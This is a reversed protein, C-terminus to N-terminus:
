EPGGPIAEDIQYLAAGAAAIKYAAILVLLVNGAERFGIGGGGRVASGGDRMGKGAQRFFLAGHNM